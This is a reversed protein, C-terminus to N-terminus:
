RAAFQPKRAAPYATPNEGQSKLLGNVISQEKVKMKHEVCHDKLQPYTIYTMPLSACPTNRRSWTGLLCSFVSRSAKWCEKDTPKRLQCHQQWPIDLCKNSNVGEPWKQLMWSQRRGGRNWLRSSPHSPWVNDLSGETLRRIRTQIWTLRIIGKRPCQTQMHITRQRTSPYTNQWWPRQKGEWRQLTNSM